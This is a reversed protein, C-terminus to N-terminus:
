EINLQKYKDKYEDSTPDLAEIEKDLMEIRYKLADINNQATVYKEHYKQQEATYVHYKPLNFSTLLQKIYGTFINESNFKFM